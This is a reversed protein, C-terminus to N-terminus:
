CAPGQLLNMAGLARHHIRVCGVGSRFSRGSRRVCESSRLDTVNLLPMVYNRHDRPNMLGLTPFDPLNRLYLPWGGRRVACGRGVAAAPDRETDVM